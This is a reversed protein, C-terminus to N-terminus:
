ILCWLLHVSNTRFSTTLISINENGHIIQGREISIRGVLGPKDISHVTINIFLVSPSIEYVLVSLYCILDLFFFRHDFRNGDSFCTSLFRRPFGRIRIDVLRYLSLTKSWRDLIMYRILMVSGRYADFPSWIVLTM